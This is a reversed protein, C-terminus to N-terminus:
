TRELRRFLAVTTSLAASENLNLVNPAVSVACQQTGGRAWAVLMAQSSRRASCPETAEYGQSSRNLSVPLVVHFRDRWGAFPIFGAPVFASLASQELNVLVLETRQPMPQDNIFIFRTQPNLFEASISSDERIDLTLDMSEDGMVVSGEWRGTLKDSAPLDPNTRTCSTEDAPIVADAISEAIASTKSVTFTTNSLVAIVTKSKPDVKLMSSAGDMGGEHHFSGSSVDVFWGLGYPECPDLQWVRTDPLARMAELTKTTVPGSRLGLHMEGFQRLSSATGYLDGAAPTDTYTWPLPEAKAGRLKAYQDKAREDVRFYIDDIRAAALVDERVFDAYPKQAVAEVIDGLLAYGINAYSFRTGPEFILTGYSELLEMTDEEDSIEGSYLVNYYLGLGSTHRLLDRITVTNDFTIPDHFVSGGLVEEVSQDLSLAGREVLLMIATATFPKTVSAMPYITQVSAATMDNMPGYAQQWITNGGQSVSVSISSTPTQELWDEIQTAVHALKM